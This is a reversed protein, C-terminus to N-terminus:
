QGRRLVGRVAGRMIRFWPKEATLRECNVVRAGFAAKFADVGGIGASSGLDYLSFGAEIGAKIAHAHLATNAAMRRGEDHSVNGWNMVRRNLAFNLDGAITRGHHEALWMQVRSGDLRSMALFFDRSFACPRGWRRSCEVLMDHYTAFDVEGSARRITVGAKEAKRIKNRVSPTFSAWVDDYRRELSVVRAPEEHVTFGAPPPRLRAAVDVMHLAATRPERALAVCAGLLAATVEHRAEPRLVLAGYTGHPMSSVVRFPGHEKVVAPIGAVLEGDEHGCLYLERSRTTGTTFLRAWESTHFFTADPDARVLDDWDKPATHTAEVPM